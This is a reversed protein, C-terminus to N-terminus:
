HCREDGDPCVFRVHVHDFHNPFHRIVGESVSRGRPYQFWRDLDSRSAGHRRAYNFLVEQLGYDIYIRRAVGARLWHELLTWQPGLALQRPLVPRLPCVGGPCDRQYYVIDVDRGSQHSRHDDIPGGEPLSLDHVRVINARPHRERVADFAAHIHRLTEETGFSREPNRIIFAPHPQLVRGNILRGCTPSGVSESPALVNRIVLRSGATVNDPDLGPNWRAIDGVTVGFRNAIESVLEGQRLRHVVRRGRGVALTQGVQISDPDIGPNWRLLDELAVGLDSAISSLTEGSSVVRRESADALSDSRRRHISIAQGPQIQNPDLGRNWSEIEDITVGFRSAICGITDSSEIVYALEERADGNQSGGESERADPNVRLRQGEHITDDTLENLRLLSEVSTHFRLALESLTDGSRVVYVEPTANSESASFLAASFVFFALFKRPNLM